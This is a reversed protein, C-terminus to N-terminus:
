DPIGHEELTERLTRILSSSARLLGLHFEREPARTQSSVGNIENEIKYEWTVLAQILEDQDTKPDTM